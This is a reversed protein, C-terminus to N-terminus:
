MLTPALTRPSQVPPEVSCTRPAGAVTSTAVSTEDLTSRSYASPVAPVPFGDRQQLFRRGVRRDAAAVLGEAGGLRAVPPASGAVAVPARYAPSDDGVRASPALM